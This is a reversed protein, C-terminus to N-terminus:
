RGRLVELAGRMWESISPWPAKSLTKNRLLVDDHFTEMIEFDPILACLDSLGLQGRYMENDNYETYLYRTRKLTQAAGRVLDEEAGQVDAWILDIEVFGYPAVAEDLTSIPVTMRREFTCWPHIALHSAPERISGSLDWDFDPRLPSAGGSRYFVTEGTRAGIAHELLTVGPLQRAKFAAAARPEPEFALITARPSLELFEQTTSGDNAGVELIVPQRRLLRRFERVPKGDRM